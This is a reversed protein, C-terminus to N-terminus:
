PKRMGFANILKAPDPEPDVMAFNSEKQKSGNEEMSEKFELHSLRGGRARKSVDRVVRPKCVAQMLVQRSNLDTHVDVKLPTDDKELLNGMWLDLNNLLSVEYHDYTADKKAMVALKGILDGMSELRESGNQEALENLYNALAGYLLPKRELVALDRPNPDLGKPIMTYSPAVYLRTAYRCRTWYASASQLDVAGALMNAVDLNIKNLGEARKLENGALASAAQYGTYDGDGSQKLQEVAQPNDMLAFLEIARPFGKVTRGAAVTATMPQSPHQLEGVYPYVLKGFAASDATYRRTILSWGTAADVQQQTEPGTIEMPVSLIRPQLEQERFQALLAQRQERINKDAKQPYDALTPGNSSGFWTSATAELEEWILWLQPNSRVLGTLVIATKSLHDATEPSIGTERASSLYFVPASAYTWARYYRAADESKEYRGQLRFRSYDLRQALLPSQQVGNARYILNLERTIKSNQGGDPFTGSLLHQMTLLYNHATTPPGAGPEGIEKLLGAVLKSLGPALVEDEVRLREEDIAMGFCLAVFDATIYNPINQTRNQRYLDFLGEPANKIGGCAVSSPILLFVVFFSSRLM